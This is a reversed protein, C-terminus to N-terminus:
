TTYFFYVSVTNNIFVYKKINVMDKKNISLERSYIYSFSSVKAETHKPFTVTYLYRTPPKDKKRINRLDQPIYSENSKSFFFEIINISTNM